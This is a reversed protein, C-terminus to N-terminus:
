SCIDADLVEDFRLQSLLSEAKTRGRLDSSRLDGLRDGEGAFTVPVTVVFRSGTRAATTRMENEYM